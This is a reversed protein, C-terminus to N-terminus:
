AREKANDNAHRNRKAERRTPGDLLLRLQKRRERRFEGSVRLLHDLFVDAATRPKM